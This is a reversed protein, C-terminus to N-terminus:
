KKGGISVIEKPFVWECFLFDLNQSYEIIDNKWKDPIEDEVFKWFSKVNNSRNLRSSSPRIIHTVKHDYPKYECKLICVDKIFEMRDVYKCKKLTDFAFLPTGDGHTITGIRYILYPSFL